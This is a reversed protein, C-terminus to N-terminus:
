RAELASLRSIMSALKSKSSTLRTAKTSYQGILSKVANTLHSVVPVISVGLLAKRQEDPLGLEQEYDYWNNCVSKPIDAKIAADLVNQAIFGSQECNCVSSVLGTEKGDATCHKYAGPEEKLCFLAPQLNKVFTTSSDESIPQINKKIREDSYIGYGGAYNVYFYSGSSDYGNVYVVLRDGTQTCKVSGGITCRRYNSGDCYFAWTSGNDHIGFEGTPDYVMFCTKSGAGWGAWTNRSSGWTSVNGYNNGAQEPSVFGRSYSTWYMGYPGQIYYWDNQCRIAGAVDLTAGPSLTNVGWSGIMGGGAGDGRLSMLCTEASNEWIFGQTSNNYVRNRIAHATFGFAGTCGTGGSFSTGAGSTAMYSAWDPNSSAWYAIGRGAGGNISNQLTILSGGVIGTFANSDVYLGVYGGSYDGTYAVGGRLYVNGGSQSQIHIGNANCAIGSTMYGQCEFIQQATGGYGNGRLHLSPVVGTVYEADAIGYSGANLMTTGGVVSLKQAPNTLGIGVKGSTPQLLVNQTSTTMPFLQLNGSADTYIYSTNAGTKLNICAVDSASGEIQIRNQTGVTSIGYVHLKVSPSTTGIGVNGATTLWLGVDSIMGNSYVLGLPGAGTVPYYGMCFVSIGSKIFAIHGKSDATGNARVLQLMGYTGTSDIQGDGIQVTPATTFISNSNYVHLKAGTTSTGIGVQLGSTTYITNSISNYGSATTISSTTISSTTISSM